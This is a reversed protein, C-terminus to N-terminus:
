YWTINMCEWEHFKICTKCFMCKSIPDRYALTTDHNIECLCPSTKMERVRYLGTSTANKGIIWSEEVFLILCFQLNSYPRWCFRYGLYTIFSGSIVIWVVVFVVSLHVKVSFSIHVNDNAWYPLTSAPSRVLVFLGFMYKNEQWKYM